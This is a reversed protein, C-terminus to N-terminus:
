GFLKGLEQALELDMPELVLAGTLVAVQANTTGKLLGIMADRRDMVVLGYVSEDALMMELPELIFEKDCRYLRQGSEADWVRLTNDAAGSVLRRGDWPSRRLAKRASITKCRSLPRSM